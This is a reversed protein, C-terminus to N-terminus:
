HTHGVISACASKLIEDSFAKSRVGRALTLAGLMTSLQAIAGVRDLSPDTHELLAILDQIRQEFQGRLAPSLRAIESGLAAIACGREPHDRHSSSLYYEVMARPLAAPQDAGLAQLQETTELCAADIAETFLSEKSKFHAYFGGHTLGVKRMLAAVAVGAIGRSRFQRAAALVIRSHTAAKHEETYRM